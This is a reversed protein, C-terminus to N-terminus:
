DFDDDDYDWDPRDPYPFPSDPNDPRYPKDPKPSWNYVTLFLMYIVKLKTHAEWRQM